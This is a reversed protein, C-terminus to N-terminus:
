FIGTLKGKFYKMGLNIEVKLDRFSMNEAEITHGLQEYM